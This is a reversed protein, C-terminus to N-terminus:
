KRYPDFGKPLYNKVEFGLNIEEEIEEVVIDDLDLDMGKYANFGLPLYKAPDFGLVIEEELEEVIISNLDLGMGAYPNFGYPLYSATDFGLVIEDEEEIITIQDLSLNRIEEDMLLGELFPNHSDSPGTALYEKVEQNLSNDKGSFSLLLFSILVTGLLLGSNKM